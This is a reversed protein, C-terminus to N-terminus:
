AAFISTIPIRNDNIAQTNTDQFIKFLTNLNLNQVNRFIAQLASEGFPPQLNPITKSKSGIQIEKSKSKSKKPYDVFDIWIWFNKIDM